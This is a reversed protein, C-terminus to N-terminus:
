YRGPIKADPSPPTGPATVGDKTPAIAPLAAQGAPRKKVANLLTGKAARASLVIIVEVWYGFYTFLWIASGSDQKM